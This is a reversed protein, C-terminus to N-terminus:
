IWGKIKYYVLATMERMIIVEYEIYKWFRYRIAINHGIEPVFLRNGGLDRDKFALDAELPNAFAPFAGICHFGAKRFSLVSRRMHEPSTVILICPEMNRGPVLQDYVSLAQARTNKGTCEYHIRDPPIGRIELENKMGAVSSRESLTDGPLAILINAEPYRVSAQWAYYTRMLASPSPMGGGGLVIIHEPRVGDDGESTGLWYYVNFPYHTFAIFLSIFFILAATLATAKLIKRIWRGWQVRKAGKM